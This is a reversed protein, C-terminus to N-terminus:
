FVEGVDEGAPSWKFGYGYLAVDDAVGSNAIRFQVTKGQIVDEIVHRLIIMGRGPEFGGLKTGGAGLVFTGLVGLAGIPESVLDVSQPAENDVQWSVTITADGTPQLFLFLQLVSMAEALSKQAREDLAIHLRPSLLEMSIGAGDDARVTKDMMKRVYGNAAGGVIINRSLTTDRKRWLGYISVNPWRSWRGGRLHFYFITDIEVGMAACILVANDAPSFVLSFRASLAWNCETLMPHVTASLFTHQLASLKDTMSIEHLGMDSLGLIRDGVAILCRNNLFRIDTGMPSLAFTAVTNGTLEHISGINPGKCVVMRGYLTPSIAVIRDGDGEEVPVTGADAGTWTLPDGLACYSLDDPYAPDGFAWIRNRHKRCGSWNLVGAGALVSATGAVGDWQWPAEGQNNCIIVRNNLSAFEFITDPDLVPAAGPTIDTFSAGGQVFVKGNTGILHKQTLIDTGSKFWFDYGTRVKQGGAANFAVLKSSGPRKKTVGYPDYTVNDAQVWNTFPLFIEPDVLNLGALGAPVADHEHITPM